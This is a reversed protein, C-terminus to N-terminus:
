GHVDKTFCIHGEGSVTPRRFTITHEDIHYHELRQVVCDAFPCYLRQKKTADDPLPESLFGEMCFKGKELVDASVYLQYWGCRKDFCEALTDRPM